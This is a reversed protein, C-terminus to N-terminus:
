RELRWDTDATINNEFGKSILACVIKALFYM